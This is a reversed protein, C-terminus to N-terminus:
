KTSREKAPRPPTSKKIEVAVKGLVYISHILNEVIDMVSQVRKGSPAYGRHVAASGADLAAELIERGKRSIHRGEELAKLKKEFSGVDGVIEVIMWDLVARAGMMPLARTDADLCKYIEELLRQLDYPIEDLWEPKTRAVRPPFFRFMPDALESSDMIRHLLVAKCGRCEFMQNTTEWWSPEGAGFEVEKVTTDSVQKLLDHLTEKHCENCFLWEAAKKNRKATAM